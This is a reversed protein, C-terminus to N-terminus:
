TKEILISRGGDGVIVSVNPARADPGMGWFSIQVVGNRPPCVVIKEIGEGTGGAERFGVDEFSAVDLWEAPLLLDISSETDSPFWHTAGCVELERMPQILYEIGEGSAASWGDVQTPTEDLLRGSFAFAVQENGQAGTTVAADVLSVAPGDGASVDTFSRWRLGGNECLTTSVAEGGPLCSGDLLRREGLPEGLDVEYAVQDNGQCEFAGTGAAEVTFTVVVEGESAVVGPRLVQGTVGGHCGLRTVMATFTSAGPSPPAGQDTHWVAADGAQPTEPVAQQEGPGAVVRSRDGEGGTLAAAAAVTLVVAAVSGVGLVAVRGRRRRGGRQRTRELAAETDITVAPVDARELLDEVDM